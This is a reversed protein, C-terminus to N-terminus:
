IIELEFPLPSLSAPLTLTSICIKAVVVSPFSAVHRLPFMFSVLSCVACAAIWAAEAACLVPFGCELFARQIEQAVRRGASWLAWGLVEKTWRGQGPPLCRFCLPIWLPHLNLISDIITLTDLPLSTTTSRMTRVTQLAGEKGRSAIGETDEKGASDNKEPNM